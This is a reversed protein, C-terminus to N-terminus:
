VTGAPLRAELHRASAEDAVLILREFAGSAQRPSPIWPASACRRRPPTKSRAAAWAAVSCSCRRVMCAPCGDERALTLGFVSAAGAELLVAACANLTAGTTAVDDVLLVDAGRVDRGNALSFVGQVNRRRQERSASGAQAQSHGTRRLAEVVTAGTRKALENSMLLAQNYGRVRRRATTLPVPVVIDPQLSHELMADALLGGLAPALSSHSGFKFAHVLHIVGAQYRFVSRL